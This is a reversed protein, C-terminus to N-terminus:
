VWNKKKFYLFMSVGITIMIAWLLPYAFEWELEPMYKFNMGYVGVIFTLPIFISAFVTLVKMVENMRNSIGSLYTDHMGSLMDKFTEVADIVQITHDYVDRFYVATSKKILPSESRLLASIVERLPWVSKRIFIMERKLFHIKQLTDPSPNKIVAEELEEIRDGIKELVVFYNDVIADIITYALYDPGYKRFKRKPDKIRERIQDFVDGKQEQFSILFNKGVIMSVQETHLNKDEFFLMKLVTFLHNEFEEIKPRQETNLIDELVLPHIEFMEGIKELLSIDHLGNINVWTVSPTEKFPMIEEINKAIKETVGFESYDIIQIEVQEEKKHGIHVLTGPPLGSKKSGRQTKKMFM